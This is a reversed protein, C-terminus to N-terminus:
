GDHSIVFRIGQKYLFQCKKYLFPLFRITLRVTIDVFANVTGEKLSRRQTTTRLADVRHESLKSATSDGGPWM